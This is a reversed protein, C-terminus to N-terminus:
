GNMLRLLRKFKNHLDNFLVLEVWLDEHNSVCDRLYKSFVVDFDDQQRKLLVPEVSLLYFFLCAM